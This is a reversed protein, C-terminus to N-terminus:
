GKPPGYKMRRKYQAKGILGYRKEGLALEAPPQEHYTALARLVQPLNTPCAKELMGYARNVRWDLVGRIEGSAHNHDTGHNKGLLLKYIAHSKQFKEIREREEPTIRYLVWLRRAKAKSAKV